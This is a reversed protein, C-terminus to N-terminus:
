LPPIRASASGTQRTCAAAATWPRRPISRPLDPLHLICQRRRHLCVELSKAPDRCPPPRPFVCGVAVGVRVMLNTSTGSGARTPPTGSPVHVTNSSGWGRPGTQPTRSRAAGTRRRCSTWECVHRNRIDERCTRRGTSFRFMGATRRFGVHHRGCVMGGIMIM